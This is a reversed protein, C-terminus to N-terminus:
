IENEELFQLYKSRRVRYQRGARVAKLRGAKIWRRVTKEDYDTAEAIWGVTLLPDSAAPRSRKM